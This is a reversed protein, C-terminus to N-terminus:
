REDAAFDPAHECAQLGGALGDQHDIFVQLLDLPHGVVVDEDFFAVHGPGAVVGAQRGLRFTAGTVATM